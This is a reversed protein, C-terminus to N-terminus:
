IKIAVSLSSLLGFCKPTSSKLSEENGMSDWLLQDRQVMPCTYLCPLHSSSISEGGGEKTHMNEIPTASGYVNKINLLRSHWNLFALQICILRRPSWAKSRQTPKTYSLVELFRKKKRSIELSMQKDTSWIALVSSSYQVKCTPLVMASPFFSELQRKSLVSVHHSSSPSVLSIFIYYLTFNLVRKTTWLTQSKPLHKRILQTRM